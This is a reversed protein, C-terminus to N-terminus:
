CCQRHSLQRSEVLQDQSHNVLSSKLRIRTQLQTGQGLWLHGFREVRTKNQGQIHPHKQQTTVLNVTSLYITPFSQWNTLDYAALLSSQPTKSISQCTGLFHELCPVAQWHTKSINLHWSQQDVMTKWRWSKPWGHNKPNSTVQSDHAVDIQRPSHPTSTFMNVIKSRFHNWEDTNRGFRLASSWGQKQYGYCKRMGTDKAEFTNNVLIDYYNWEWIGFYM